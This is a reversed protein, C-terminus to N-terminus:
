NHLDFNRRNVEDYEKLLNKKRESNSHILFMCGMLPLSFIMLAMIALVPGMILGLYGFFADKEFGSVFVFFCYLAIISGIALSISTIRVHADESRFPTFVFFISALILIAPPVIFILIGMAFFFPHAPFLDFTGHIFKLYKDM